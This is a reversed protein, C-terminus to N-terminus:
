KFIEQDSFYKQLLNKASKNLYSLFRIYSVPHKLLSKFAVLADTEDPTTYSPNEVMVHQYIKGMDLYFRKINDRQSPFVKALEKSFMELDAWFKIRHGKFNVSYLLDHKIVSLPEELFNFVLRHANYGKEGFGYLMAAGQDFIINNRKFIGCSGGPKYNNDIVGVQLGRKALLSAATLGSLGAGIVIVDYYKL